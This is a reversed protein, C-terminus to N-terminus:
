EDGAAAALVIHTALQMVEQALPADNQEMAANQSV